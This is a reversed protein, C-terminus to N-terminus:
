NGGASTSRGANGSPAGSPPAGGEPPVPRDGGAGMRGMGPIPIGGAFGGDEDMLAQPSVLLTGAEAGSVIRYNDSDYNQIEVRAPQPDAGEGGAILVMGYASDSGLSLVANKSVVLIDEADSVFIEATFTFSPRIAEDPDTLILEVDLVAIGNSTVRAERPISSVYGNYRIDPYADFIFEVRQGEDIKPADIEDIAVTAKMMSVDIIRIVEGNQVVSDGVAVPIDSVTGDFGAEIVTDELDDLKLERQMELLALERPSASNTKQSISYDIQALEYRLTSDDLRALVQNAAVPDGEEVAISEIRGSIMATYTEAQYAEINGSAEITESFSMQRVEYREAATEPLDAQRAGSISIAAITGATGLVAVIAVLIISRKKSRQTTAM